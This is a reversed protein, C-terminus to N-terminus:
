RLYIYLIGSDLTVVQFDRISKPNASWDVVQSQAPSECRLPLIINGAGDQLVAQDGITIPGEWYVKEIRLYPRQYIAAINSQYTGSMVANIVIPNSLFNNAM